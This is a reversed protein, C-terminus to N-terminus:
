EHIQVPKPGNKKMFVSIKGMLAISVILQWKGDPSAVHTTMGMNIYLGDNGLSIKSQSQAISIQRFTNLEFPMMAQPTEKLSTPVSDYPKKNCRRKQKKSITGTLEGRKKKKAQAPHTESPIKPGPITPDVLFCATGDARSHNHKMGPPIPVDM